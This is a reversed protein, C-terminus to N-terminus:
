EGMQEAIMVRARSRRSKVTGPKVGLQAAAGDISLGVVDILYLARRHAEPVTRMAQRLALLREVGATPDHRLYRNADASVREEDDLSVVYRETGRRRYFDYSANVVLRHLWTGVQSEFRFAQLNQAARFLADQLIDQADQENYARSRATAQMRPQHRRVLAAFARPDGAVYSRVLQNDTFVDM